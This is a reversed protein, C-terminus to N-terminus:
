VEKPTQTGGNPANEPPAAEEPTPEPPAEDPPRVMTSGDGALASAPVSQPVSPEPLSSSATLSVYAELSQVM